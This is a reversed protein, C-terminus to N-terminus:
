NLSSEVLYLMGSIYRWKNGVWKIGIYMDEGLDKLFEIDDNNRPAFLNGGLNSCRKQADDVSAWGVNDCIGTGNMNITTGTAKCEDIDKCKNNVLEYGSQCKADILNIGFLIKLILSM